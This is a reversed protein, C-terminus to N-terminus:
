GGSVPPILAIEDGSNIVKEATNYDGNIAIAFSSLAKIPPYLAEIHKRLDAITSEDPLVVSVTTNGVIERIIGFARIQINMTEM